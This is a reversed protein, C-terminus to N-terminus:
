LVSVLFYSQCVTCPEFSSAFASFRLNWFAFALVLIHARELTLGELGYGLQKQVVLPSVTAAEACQLLILSLQLQAQQRLSSVFKRRQSRAIDAIDTPAAHFRVEIRQSVVAAGDRLDVLRDLRRLRDESISEVRFVGDLASAARVSVILPVNSFCYFTGRASRGLIDCTSSNVPPASPVRVRAGRRSLGTLSCSRPLALVVHVLVKDSKRHDGGTSPKQSSPLFHTSSLIMWGRTSRGCPCAACARRM